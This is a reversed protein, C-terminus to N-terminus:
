VRYNAQIDLFEKSRLVLWIQLKLSLMAIRVWWGSLEYVFVWGNLWVSWIISKHQSHTDTHHMQRYTMIMDRVLKLTFKCEITKRFTLSSRARLLHWIQLKLSLLPIRVWLSKTRLRILEKLHNHTRIGNSDSLM